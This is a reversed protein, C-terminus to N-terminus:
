PLEIETVLPAHDSFKREKYVSAAKTKAFLSPSMIQYDIRWGVDNIYARGRNSWWTYGPVEPHLLRFSDMWGSDLVKGMWEREEPLFGSNKENAKDNKIDIRQHAINFDGCVVVNEYDKLYKELLPFFADMMQFKVEQREESNSGSPMYLSFVVLDEFIARILRGEENFLPIECGKVVELPKKKSYIGVGSYGPREAPFLFAHYGEPNKVDEPLKDLRGKLEQVCVIDLDAERMYEFFGKDKASRIGNVNASALKITPM